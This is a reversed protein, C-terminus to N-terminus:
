YEYVWHLLRIVLTRGLVIYDCPEYSDDDILILLQLKSKQLARFRKRKSCQVHGESHGLHSSYSLLLRKRSLSREPGLKHSTLREGPNEPPM